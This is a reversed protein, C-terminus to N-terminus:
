KLKEEQGTEEGFLRLRILVTDFGRRHPGVTDFSKPTVAAIQLTRNATASTQAICEVLTPM